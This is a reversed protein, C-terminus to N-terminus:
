RRSAQLVVGAVFEDLDGGAFLFGPLGAAEAAEIDSARDGIVFSGERRVPWHQMLDLIMGPGPKRCECPDLYRAVSGEPHHPCYRLDDIRAGQAALEALMWDHLVRLEDESFFGRAVGSQNTFLFVLYGAENLRRV